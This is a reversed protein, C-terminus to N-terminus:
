SLLYSYRLTRFFCFAKHYLVMFSKAKRGSIQPAVYFRMLLTASINQEIEYLENQM